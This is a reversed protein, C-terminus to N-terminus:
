KGLVVIESVAVTDQPIVYGEEDLIQLEDNRQAPLKFTIRIEKVLMPAFVAVASGGPRMDDRSGKVYSQWDFPLDEIYATAGDPVDDNKFDFEVRDIYMFAKDFWKSNYVMLGRVERYDDFTLTITTNKATTEFEKVFDIKKYMSLVGDTLAEVNSGKNATVAAESAINEWESAIELQPQLSWTPGNAVMVEQGKGNDVFTIRDMALTRTWSGGVLRDEQQHYVIMLEDGAEVFCHHGTGKIHDWSMHDNALLIGGEEETLKRFPGLPNDSLAQIVSYDDMRNISTTLYYTATGDEHKRVYMHPGENRPSASEYDAIETKETTLYGLSTLRTLTSYDPTQWDIMRIGWVASNVGSETLVEGNDTEMERTFLMYKQGDAGYFPSADICCWLGRDKEAVVENAKDEEILFNNEYAQFPGYPEDAIAIGIHMNSNDWSWETTASASYFLYYKDTEADYILEPAWYPNTFSDMEQEVFCYHGVEASVDQWNVMDKSRYAKYGQDVFNTAYLYYYGYETSEEDTIYMVFPDPQTLLTDNRYFLEHNYEGTDAIGGEHIKADYALPIGASSCGTLVLVVVILAILKCLNKKM